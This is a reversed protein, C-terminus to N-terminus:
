SRQQEKTKKYRVRLWRVRERAERIKVRLEKRYTTFTELEEAFEEVKALSIDDHDENYDMVADRALRKVTDIVRGFEKYEWMLYQMNQKAAIGEEQILLLAHEQESLADLIANRSESMM